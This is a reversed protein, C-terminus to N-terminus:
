GIKAAHMRHRCGACRVLGSLLAGEGRPPRNGRAANAALWLDLGVIPDHAGECVHEGYFATGLYVRNGERDSGRVINEVSKRTWRDCGRPRVGQEDAWDAIAQWAIGRARREFVGVVVAAEDPVVVLPAGKLREGDPGVPKRYGFPEHTHRGAAIATAVSEGFVERAEEWQMRALGLFLDRVFRGRPTTPDHDETASKVRGPKEGETGEIREFLEIRQRPTLRSLRDLRYVAIGALEGREIRDVTAMIQARDAKAGSVDLDSNLWQVDFGQREALQEIERRQTDPSQLDQPKRTGLKSVRVYGAFVPRNGDNASM